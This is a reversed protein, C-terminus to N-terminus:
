DNRGGAVLFIIFVVFLLTAWLYFDRGLGDRSFFVFGFSFISSAIFKLYFRM